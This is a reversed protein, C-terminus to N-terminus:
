RKKKPRDDDDEDIEELVGFGASDDDGSDRGSIKLVGSILLGILVVLGAVIAIAIWRNGEIEAGAAAHAVGASAAAMVGAIWITAKWGHKISMGCRKEGGSVWADTDGPWIAMKPRISRNLM